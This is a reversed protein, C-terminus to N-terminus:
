SSPWNRLKASCSWQSGALNADRQEAFVWVGKYESFDPVVRPEIDTRISNHHCVDVCAGCSTCRDGISAKGDKMEIADYPCERKCRSCGDCLDIEVWVAM